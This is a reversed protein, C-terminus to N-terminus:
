PQGAARPQARTIKAMMASAQETLQQNPHLATAAQLEFKAYDYLGLASLCYAKLLHVEPFSNGGGKEAERLSKLALRPADLALTAKAVEYHAQWAQPALSVAHKASTLADSFRGLHSYIAALAAYAAPQHQDIQISRELHAQAQSLDPNEIEILGKLTLADAFAPEIKLANDVATLARKFNGSKFDASAKAYFSRAREPLLLTPAAVTAPQVASPQRAPSFHLEVQSVGSDVIVDDSAELERKEAIVEYNGHALNPIVFNGDAGTYGFAIPVASASEDVEIRIGAAPKGNTGVVKGQLQSSTAATFQSSMATQGTSLSSLCLSFVLASLLSAARPGM